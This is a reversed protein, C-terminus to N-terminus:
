SARTFVVVEVGPAEAVVQQEQTRLVVAGVQVTENVAPLRRTQGGSRVDFGEPTPVLTIRQDAIRPAATGM